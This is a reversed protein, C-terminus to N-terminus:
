PLVEVIRVVRNNEFEVRRKQLVLMEPTEEAPVRRDYRLWSLTEYGLDADIRWDSPHGWVALVQEPTMGPVVEGRWMAAVITEPLNPNAAVYDRAASTCATFFVGMLLMMM